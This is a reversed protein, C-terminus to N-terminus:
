RRKEYVEEEVFAFSLLLAIPLLLASIALLLIFFFIAGLANSYGLFTM